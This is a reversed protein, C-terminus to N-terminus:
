YLQEFSKYHDATYYICGEDSYIIRKAGRSKKGLTDIDCEWYKADEPLSQEYNGYRDGGICKGPAYAEVSGGSWGLKRAEKKTIYNDPLEGYIHIYLAVNDKDAYVGDRDLSVADKGAYGGDSALTVEYSDEASAVSFQYLGTNGAATNDGSLETESSDAGDVVKYRETDGGTDTLEESGYAEEPPGKYETADKLGAKAEAAARTVEGEVASRTYAESGCGAAMLVMIFSLAMPLLWRWGKIMCM